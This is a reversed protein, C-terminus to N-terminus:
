KTRGANGPPLASGGATAIYEFPSTGRRTLERLPLVWGLVAPPSSVIRLGLNYYYYVIALVHFLRVGLYSQPRAQDQLTGDCPHTAGCLRLM